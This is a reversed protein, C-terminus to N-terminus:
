VQIQHLWASLSMVLIWNWLPEQDNARKRQVLEEYAVFFSVICAFLLFVEQSQTPPMAPLPLWM